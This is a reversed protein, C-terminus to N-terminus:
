LDFKAVEIALSTATPSMRKDIWALLPGYVKLRPNKQLHNELKARQEQAKRQYLKNDQVSAYRINLLLNQLFTNKAQRRKYKKMLNEVQSYISPLRGTEFLCIVRSIECMLYVMPNSQSRPSAIILDAWVLARDYEETFYYAQMCSYRIVSMRTDTILHQRNKLNKELNEDRIYKCAEKFQNFSIFYLLRFYCITRYRHIEEKEIYKKVFESELIQISEEKKQELCKTLYNELVSLYNVPEEEAIVKGDHLLFELNQKLYTLTDDLNFKDSRKEKVFPVLESCYQLQVLKWYHLRPNVKEPLSDKLAVTKEMLIEAEKPISDVANRLAIFLQQSELFTSYTIKLNTLTEDLEAQMEEMKWPIYNMRATVRAEWTQLELLYAPRDISKALAKAHKIMRDCEAYMDHYFLYHIDQLTELLEIHRSAPINNASRVQAMIRDFLYTATAYMDANHAFMGSESLARPLHLIDNRSHIFADIFEFLVIYKQKEGKKLARAQKKLNTKQGASMSAILRYLSHAIHNDRISNKSM